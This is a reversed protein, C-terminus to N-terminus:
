AQNIQTLLLLLELFLHLFLCVRGHFPSLLPPHARKRVAGDVGFAAVALAALQLILLRIRAAGVAVVGLHGWRLIALIVITTYTLSARLM